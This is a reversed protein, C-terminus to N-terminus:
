KKGEVTKIDAGLRSLNNVFNEYGRNIYDVHGVSTEGDACLGAVAIAAGGRLDAAEVAAGTLREVGDVVAVRGQVRIRAGLRVLEDVQRFRNEFINEVFVTTGEGMVTMAMLTPQADTPFGPYVGTRVTSLAKPRNKFECEVSRDKIKITGGAQEFFPFTSYLHTPEINNLIIKGGCAGVASMYTAAAIRDPIVVHECGSLSKVGEVEVTSEGAGFVRAGCSNLFQALDSIEPERAANRIVTKGRAKIAALMINETAGVSPFPLDIECGLLTDKCFCDLRGHSEEIELGMKRLSSLHIDIPRPGLECGGPLSLFACGCKATVAGLFIISSRMERMLADPVERCKFGRPDVTLTNGERKVGCGLYELIKVAANVDTIDPCNHIVCPSECILAASLIPLSSNKAGQVDIEGYLKKGGKICIRKM